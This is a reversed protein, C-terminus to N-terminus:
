QINTNETHASTTNQAAIFLFSDPHNTLTTTIYIIQRAQWAHRLQEIQARTYRHRQVAGTQATYAIHASQLSLILVVIIIRTYQRHKSTMYSSKRYAHQAYFCM